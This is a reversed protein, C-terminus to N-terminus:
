QKSLEDVMCRHQFANGQFASVGETQTYFFGPLGNTWALGCPMPVQIFHKLVIFIYNSHPLYITTKKKKKLPSLKWRDAAKADCRNPKRMDQPLVLLSTISVLKKLSTHQSEGRGNRRIARDGAWPTM